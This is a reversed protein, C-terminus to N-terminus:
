HGPITVSSCDGHRDLHMTGDKFNYQYDLHCTGDNYHFVFHDANWEQSFQPKSSSQAMAAGPIALAAAAIILLNRASM